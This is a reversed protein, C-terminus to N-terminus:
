VGWERGVSGKKNRKNPPLLRKCKKQRLNHSFTKRCLIHSLPCSSPFSSSSSSSADQDSNVPYFIIDFNRRKNSYKGKAQRIRYFPILCSQSGTKGNLDHVDIGDRRVSQNKPVKSSIIRKDSAPSHYLWILSFNKSLMVYRGSWANEGSAMAGFFNTM